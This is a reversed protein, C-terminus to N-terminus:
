IVRHSLAMCCLCDCFCMFVILAFCSAGKKEDFHYCVYSPCLSHVVFCLSFVSGGCVIHPVYLM